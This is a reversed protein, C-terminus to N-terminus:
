PHNVSLCPYPHNIALCAYSPISRYKRKIHGGTVVVPFLIALGVAFKRSVWSQLLTSFAQQLCFAVM